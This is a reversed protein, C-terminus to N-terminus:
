VHARGIEVHAVLEADHLCVTLNGELMGLYAVAELSVELLEDLGEVSLIPCYLVFNVDCKQVFLPM